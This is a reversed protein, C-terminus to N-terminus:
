SGMFSKPLMMSIHEWWRDWITSATLGLLPAAPSTSQPFSTGMRSFATSFTAYRTSTAAWWRASIISILSSRAQTPQCTRITKWFIPPIASKSSAMRPIPTTPLLDSECALMISAKSSPGEPRIPTLIITSVSPMATRSIPRSGQTITTKSVGPSKVPIMSGVPLAPERSRHVPLVRPISHALPIRIQSCVTSSGARTESNVSSRRMTTSVGCSLLPRAQSISPPSLTPLRPLPAALLELVDAYVLRDVFRHAGIDGRDFDDAPLREFERIVLRMPRTGRALPLTIAGKWFTNAIGQSTDPPSLETDGMPIWLPLGADGFDAQVSVVMRPVPRGINGPDNDFFDQYSPGVVSVNLQTVDNPVFTVSASRGPALQVFDALVVRSVRLDIPRDFVSERPNGNPQFRVLALRLFPFYAGDTDIEIDCFWRGNHPHRNPDAPLDPNSPDPPDFQVDFGVVALGFHPDVFSVPIADASQVELEVLKAKHFHVPLPTFASPMPAALFAPDTGWQTVFPALTEAVKQPPEAIPDGAVRRTSSPRGGSGGGDGPDPDPPPFPKHALLVGLLEGDGSSYWPRDLYVRLGVRRKRSLPGETGGTQEWGFTPVVYLVKPAAPRASAPVDVTKKDSVQTINAVDSTLTEPFYERFRTTAVVQYTVRRYKTDRFEHKTPLNNAAEKFQDLGPDWETETAAIDRRRVLTASSRRSPPNVGDDIPEDWEAMLELKDTSPGDVPMAGRFGCLTDGEKRVVELNPNLQPKILPRQVAHVLTLQRPPTLGPIKSQLARQRLFELTAPPVRRPTKYYDWYDFLGLGQKGGNNVDDDMYSALNIPIAWGKPVQVTLVRTGPDWSAAADGEQLILRFTQLKPWAGGFPVQTLPVQMLPNIPRIFPDPAFDFTAGRGLPDPLYPLAPPNEGYPTDGFTDDLQTLLSYVNPDLGTPTDLMGHWEAMQVSTKPPAILREATETSPANIDSRIVLRDVSEGPKAVDKMLMTPAVLPDFRLYKGLLLTFQEGIPSDLELSNGALDVMRLRCDYTSGFRLRPLSGAVPGFTVTLPLNGTGQDSQFMPVDEPSITKGPRPVSLSWGQWRFLAEHTWLQATPTDRDPNFARLAIFGEDTWNRVIPGNTFKYTGARQCLSRWTKEDKVRIDVRFGRLLDEAGLVVENGTPDGKKPDTLKNNNDLQKQLMSDLQSALGSRSLSLGSSRPAPLTLTPTATGAARARAAEKHFRVISPRLGHALEDLNLGMTTYDDPSPLLLMGFALDSSPNASGVFFTKATRDLVYLTWPRALPTWGDFPNTGLNSSVDAVRVMGADPIDVLPGSFPIELDFVLGLARMLDPYRSVATLATHFDFQYPDLQFNRQKADDYRDRAGQSLGEYFSAMEDFHLVDATVGPMAAIHRATVAKYTAKLRQLHGRVRQREEETAPVLRALRETAAVDLTAADPLGQPLQRYGEVVNDFNEKVAYSKIKRGANNEFSHSAVPLTTPFLSRWLADDFANTEPSVKDTSAGDFLVQFSLTKATGAWNSTGDGGAFLPYAALTTNAPGILRPSLMISLRLVNSGDSATVWGNPMVAWVLTGFSNTAM